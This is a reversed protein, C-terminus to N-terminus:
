CPTRCNPTVLAVTVNAYGKYKPDVREAVVQHNTLFHGNTDIFFGTGIAKDQYGMGGKYVIGKDLYVTVVANMMSEYDPTGIHSSKIMVEQKMKAIEPFQNILEPYIKRFNEENHLLSLFSKSM